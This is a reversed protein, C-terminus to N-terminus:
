PTPKRRASRTTRQKTGITDHAAHLTVEREDPAIVIRHDGSGVEEDKEKHHGRDSVLRLM